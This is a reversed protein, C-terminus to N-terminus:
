VTAAYSRPPLYILTGPELDLPFFIQPNMDALVYWKNGDGFRKAALSEFTDGAQTTYPISGEPPDVTTRRLEYIQNAEGTEDLAQIVKGFRYRSGRFITM